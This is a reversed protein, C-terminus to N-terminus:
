LVVGGGAKQRLIISKFLVRMMSRNDIGKHEYFRSDETAILAKILLPNVEEFKADTRNEIYYRGLLVGDSSYVESAEYNKIAKLEEDTPILGFVGNIVVFYGTVLILFALFISSSTFILGVKM